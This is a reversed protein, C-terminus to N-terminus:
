PLGHKTNSFYHKFILIWYHKLISNFSVLFYTFLSNNWVSSDRIFLLCSTNLFSFHLTKIKSLFASAPFSHLYSSFPVPRCLILHNSPMVSEFSMLKLLSWSISFSLSAQHATDKSDWLTLCSQAASCCFSPLISKWSILSSFYILPLDM